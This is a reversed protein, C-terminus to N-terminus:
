NTEYTLDIWFRIKAVEGILGEFINTGTVQRRHSSAKHDVHKVNLFYCSLQFKRSTSSIRVESDIGNRYFSTFELQKIRQLCYQISIEDKRLSFYYVLLVQTM